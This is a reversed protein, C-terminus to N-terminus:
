SATNKHRTEAISSELTNTYIALAKAMAPSSWEAYEVFKGQTKGQVKEPYQGLEWM